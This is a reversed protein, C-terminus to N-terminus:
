GVREIIRLGASRARTNDAIEQKTPRVKGGVVIFRGEPRSTVLNNEDIGRGLGEIIMKIIKDETAHFTIFVIRGGIKLLNFSAECAKVIEQLEDNVHMRIAMFTKTAPDIKGRRGGTALRVISALEATTRIPQNDRFQIIARAIRRSHKEDGYYFLIRALEEEAENNVVDYASCDNKGMRMCLDSDHMFSFGREPDDLQMSSVGLDFLIGDAPSIVGSSLANSFKDNIFRTNKYIPAFQEQWIKFALTDRDICCLTCDPEAEMLAKSHGGAGFTCDVYHGLKKPRMAEVVERCMVPVHKYM